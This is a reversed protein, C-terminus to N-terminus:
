ASAEDSDPLPEEVSKCALGAELMFEYLSVGDPLFLLVKARSKKTPRTKVVMSCSQEVMMYHVTDLVKLPWGGTTSFEIGKEGTNLIVARYFLKDLSYRAICAQGIRLTRHLPKPRDCYAEKLKEKMVKYTERDEYNLIQVYVVADEDIHSPMVMLQKEKPFSRRQWQFQPQDDHIVMFDTEEQTDDTTCSSPSSDTVSKDDGADKGKELHAAEVAAGDLQTAVAETNCSSPSSVALEDSSKSAAADSQENSEEVASAPKTSEGEVNTSAKTTNKEASTCAKTSKEEVNTSAKLSVDEVKTPPPTSDSAGSSGSSAESVTEWSHSLEDPVSEVKILQQESDKSRTSTIDEAVTESVVPEKQADADGNGATEAESSPAAEMDSAAKLKSSPAAGASEAAPETNLRSKKKSIKKSIFGYGMEKLAERVSNYEKRMPELAGAEHVEEMMIDVPLSGGLEEGLKVMFNRNPRSLLCAFAEEATKSWTKSGGAPIMDALHCVHAFPPPQALAEPLSFGEDRPVVVQRGSDVLFVRLQEQEVDLVKARMWHQGSGKTACWQGVEWDEKIEKKDNCASHLSSSLAKFDKEEETLRVYFRQPSEPYTVHVPVYDKKPREGAALEKSPEAMHMELAALLAMAPRQTTSSHSPQRPKRSWLCPLMDVPPPAQGSMTPATRKKRRGGVKSEDYTQVISHKPRAILHAKMTPVDEVLSLPGTSAALNEKVLVANVCVDTDDKGPIYLSVKTRQFEESNPRRLSFVARRLFRSVWHKSAKFDAPLIGKDRAIERAKAQLLEIHVALQAARQELVFDTLEREVDPFAGNKPGWFSKRKGCCAFLAEKQKRWGRISRENVGFQREAACNNITEAASIVKRKFAASYQRRPGSMALFDRFYFRPRRSIRWTIAIAVTARRICAQVQLDRPSVGSVSGRWRVYFHASVEDTWGNSLPGVDALTVPIAQIPLYMFKDPIRRVWIIPVREQNGYDVFLVEVDTKRVLSIIKGRYWLHDHPFKALCVMGVQPEFLIDLETSESNCYHQLEGLMTQMGEVSSGLQRFAEEGGEEFSLFLRAANLGAMVEVASPRVPAKDEEEDDDSAAVPEASRVQSIIDGVTLAGRVVASSDVNVYDAFYVDELVDAMPAIVGHELVPPEDAETSFGCHRFGDAIMLATM